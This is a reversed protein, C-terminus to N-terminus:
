SASPGASPGASSGNSAQGGGEQRRRAEARLREQEIERDLDALQQETTRSDYPRAPPAPPTSSTRPARSPRPIRPVGPAGEAHERGLVFWLIVGLLPLLIVLILWLVKPMHKIQSDDRTVIDVIAVVMAAVLVLWFVFQM